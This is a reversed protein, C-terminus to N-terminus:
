PKLYEDLWGLVTKYWLRSNQAKLVWHGEDPFYLLKSPVGRRQLAAFIAFAQGQPVRFDLEGEAILMPTQINQVFASPSWKEYLSSEEWPMGKLEWEPFWLEETEGYMSRNDYVGDHSVLVKFRHSHGAIWDIMYGGFSAGAAGIRTRDVYPLSELYDTALMLDQYPAGGWDRSIEEVFRQGYGTSGHFNTMMVVYGHSAFMQANWRYSWANDWASQPGGHILVLAPYKKSPEFRPPKVLLSQVRAGLAGKTM